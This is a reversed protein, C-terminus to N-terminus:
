TYSNGQFPPDFLHCHDLASRFASMHTESRLSGGSKNQNSLIENFYGIILWPQLPAVDALRCLLTSSVSTNQATPAGYFATFHYQQGGTATMFCDFFYSGFTNLNVDIDDKWLLMCGGSLGIRPVELGHTFKLSQQIRNLSNNNLRTEMLFLVHPSQQQILLRLHRLARSNGLGHLLNNITTFNPLSNPPYTAFQIQPNSTSGIDPTDIQNLNTIPSHNIPLPNMGSTTSPITPSSSHKTILMNSAVTTISSLHNHPSTTISSLPLTQPQHPNQQLLVSANSDNMAMNSVPTSSEGHFLIKPQPQSRVGLTPITIVLSKHALRTLLPWANSKSFDTRYKDYGNTPLKADKLWPGYLLDDDNGNDMREM